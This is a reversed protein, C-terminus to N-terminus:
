LVLLALRCMEKAFWSPLKKFSYDCSPVYPRWGYVLIVEVAEGSVDFPATWDRCEKVSYAGRIQPLSGKETVSIRVLWYLAWYDTFWYSLHKFRWPLQHSLFEDDVLLCYLSQWHRSFDRKKVTSLATITAKMEWRLEGPSRTIPKLSKNSDLSPTELAVINADQALFNETWAPYTSRTM